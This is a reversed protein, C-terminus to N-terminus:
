KNAKYTCYNVYTQKNEYKIQDNWSLLNDIIVGLFKIKGVQKVKQGNVPLTLTCDYHEFRACKMRESYNINPRFYM